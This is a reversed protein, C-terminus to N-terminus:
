PSVVYGGDFQNRPSSMRWQRYGYGLRHWRSPSPNFPPVVVVVRQFRHTLFYKTSCVEKTMVRSLALEFPFMPGRGYMLTKSCRTSPSVSSPLYEGTYM